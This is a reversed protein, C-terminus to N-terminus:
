TTPDGPHSPASPEPRRFEDVFRPGTPAAGGVLEVRAKEIDAQYKLLIHLTEPM